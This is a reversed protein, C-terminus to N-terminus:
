SGSFPESRFATATQMMLSGDSMNGLKFYPLRSTFDWKYCATVIVIDSPGGASVAILQDDPATNTIVVKNSDVCPQPTVSAWDAFRNVFIQLKSCQIWNGAGDCIAQKFQKVTMQATEAQGTRILRSSQDMGKEVSSMIFFYLACGILGFIFMLFPGSVMAFEVATAGKEDREFRKFSTLRALPRLGLNMTGAVRM